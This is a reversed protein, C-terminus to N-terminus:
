SVSIIREPSVQTWVHHNPRNRREYWKGVNEEPRVIRIQSITSDKSVQTGTPNANERQEERELKRLIVKCFEEPTKERDEPAPSAPAGPKPKLSIHGVTPLIGDVDTDYFRAPLIYAGREKFARAQASKREHNTWLKNAYHKSIFMVTFRAKKRYIDDLHVYLDKGWLEAEEYKDYFVKINKEKLINAVQEVYERDEGAFSLAVDYEFEEPKSM